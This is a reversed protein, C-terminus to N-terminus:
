LSAHHKCREKELRRQGFWHAPPRSIRSLVWRGEACMILKLSLQTIDQRKVACTSLVLRLQRGVCGGRKEQNPFRWVRVQHRLMSLMRAECQHYESRSMQARVVSAERLM